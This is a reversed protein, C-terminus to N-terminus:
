NLGEDIDLFAVNAVYRQGRENLPSNNVSMFYVFHTGTQKCYDCTIIVPFARGITELEQNLAKIKEFELIAGDCCFFDPDVDDIHRVRARM